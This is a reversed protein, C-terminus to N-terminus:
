GTPQNAVKRRWKERDSVIEKSLRYSGVGADQYKPQM